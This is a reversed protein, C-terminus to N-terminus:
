QVGRNSLVHSVLSCGQLSVVLRASKPASRTPMAVMTWSGGRVLLDIGMFLCALSSFTRPPWGSFHTLGNIEETTEASLPSSRQANPAVSAFVM